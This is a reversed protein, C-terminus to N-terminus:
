KKRKESGIKAIVKEDLDKVISNENISMDKALMKWNHTYIALKIGYFLIIITIIIFLAKKLKKNKLKTDKKRGKRKSSNDTESVTEKKGKMELVAKPLEEKEKYRHKRKNISKKKMLDSRKM